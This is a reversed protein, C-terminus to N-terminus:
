DMQERFLTTINVSYNVQKLFHLNIKHNLINNYTIGYHKKYTFQIIYIIILYFVLINRKIKTHELKTLM